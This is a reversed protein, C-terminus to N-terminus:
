QVAEAEFRKPQSKAWRINRSKVWNRTAQSPSVAFARKLRPDNPWVGMRERYQNAAWGDRYGREAALGKLEAFFRVKDAWDTKANLTSPRLEHLEGKAMEVDRPSHEAMFGCAPCCKVKPPKLFACAPCKKPLPERRESMGNPKGDDLHEHHIDSPFGLRLTTDSHDLILCDQKGEATRLGRGIMQVFLIESKTPRVLSICRVDWDIGTTLVGVSCAVKVEGSRFKRELEKREEPKSYADVYGCAVGAQEFRRQLHKAHARDVAFCLTPRDEAKELWTAVVDGVLKTESMADSLQGVVYDGRATEVGSLDPSTPAFVRFPSLYGAEIMRKTTSVVVLDDWNDAMAKTWPTASLGIFPVKAWEPRRMWEYLFERQLHAEDVIVVGAEPLDRRMLSDISAIQVRREPDTLEHSQQIVGIDSVGQQLFADVTQDVLSIRPITFIARHGKALASDIIASALITKGGGTPLQLVPRRKGSRLSARLADIGQQQYTRLVKM